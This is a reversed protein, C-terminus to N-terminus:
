RAHSPEVVPGIQGVGVDSIYYTGAGVHLEDRHNPACVEVFLGQAVVEGFMWAHFVQQAIVLGVEAVLRVHCGVTGGCQPGDNLLNRAVEVKFEHSGCQVEATLSQGIAADVLGIVPHIGEQGSVRLRM